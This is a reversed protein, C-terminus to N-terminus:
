DQEQAQVIQQAIDREFPQNIRCRGAEFTPDYRAVM